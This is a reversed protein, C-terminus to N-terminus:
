AHDTAQTLAQLQNRLHGPLSNVLDCLEADVSTMIRTSATRFAKLSVFEDSNLSAVSDFRPLRESVTPHTNSLRRNIGTIAERFRGLTDLAMLLVVGGAGSFLYPNTCIVPEREVECGILLAFQDADFEEQKPDNEHRRGHSLHHHGYEHATAFIEM